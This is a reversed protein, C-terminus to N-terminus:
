EVVGGTLSLRPAVRWWLWLPVLTGFLVPAWIFESVDAFVNNNVILKALLHWVSEMPNLQKVLQATSGRQPFFTPVFFVLFAGLAASLSTRNSASRASIWVGLAAFGVVLLTGLGMGWVFTLRTTESGPSLILLFPLSVLWVVPWASLVAVTKGIVLARRSIPTLLQAELTGRERDGSISDAGAILAIFIGGPIVVNKLAIYPLEKPPILNIDESTALLYALGGLLTSLIILLLPLRGGTWLAHTERGAIILWEPSAARVRDRRDTTLAVATGTTATAASM